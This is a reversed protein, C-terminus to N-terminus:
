DRDYKGKKREETYGKGNWSLKLHPTHFCVPSLSHTTQSWNEVKLKATKSPALLLAYARM